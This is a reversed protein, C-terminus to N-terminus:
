WTCSKASFCLYLVGTFICVVSLLVEVAVVFM